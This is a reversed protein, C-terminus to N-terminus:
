FRKLKHLEKLSNRAAARVSPSINVATYTSSLLLFIISTSTSPSSGWTMRIELLLTSLQEKYKTVGEETKARPATINHDSDCLKPQRTPISCTSIIKKSKRFFLEHRKSM